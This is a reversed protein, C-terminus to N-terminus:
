AIGLCNKLSDLGRRILSKVSGIPQNQETALESHSYGYFFALEINRRASPALQELCKEIHGSMQSQQALEQPGLSPEIINELMDEIEDGGLQQPRVGARRLNDICSNRVISVMWTLPASRGSDYESANHWIRVYCEQLVDEAWDQRGLIRMAVAFLNASTQSYLKEFANQDGKGASLLLLAINNNRDANKM